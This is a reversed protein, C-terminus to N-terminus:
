ASLRAFQSSADQVANLHDGPASLPVFCVAVNCARSMDKVDVGMGFSRTWVFIHIHPTPPHQHNSALSFIHLPKQRVTWASLPLCALYLSRCVSLSLSFVRGRHGASSSFVGFGRGGGLRPLPRRPVPGHCASEDGAFRLSAFLSLSSLGRTSM